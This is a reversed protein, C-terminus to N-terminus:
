PIEPKEFQLPPASISKLFAILPKHIDNPFGHLLHTEPSAPGKGYLGIITEISKFTGDHMYPGTFAVNRLSPTKFKGKDEEKHTVKYM